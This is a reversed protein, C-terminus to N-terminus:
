VEDLPEPAHVPDSEPGGCTKCVHAEYSGDDLWVWGGAGWGTPGAGGSGSVFPHTAHVEHPHMETAPSRHLVRDILTTHPLDPDPM